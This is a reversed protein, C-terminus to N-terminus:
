TVLVCLLVQAECAHHLGLVQGPLPLQLPHLPLAHLALARHPAAPAPPASLASGRLFAEQRAPGAGPHPYPHPSGSSQCTQKVSKPGPGPGLGPLSGENPGKELNEGGFGPAEGAVTGTWGPLPASRCGTGSSGSSPAAPPEPALGPGRQPRHSSGPGAGLSAGGASPGACSCTVRGGAWGPGGGHCSPWGDGACAMGAKAVVVMEM